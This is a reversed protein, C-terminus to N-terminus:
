YMACQSCMALISIHTDINCVNTVTIVSMVNLYKAVATAM